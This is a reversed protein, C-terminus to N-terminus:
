ARPKNDRYFIEVPLHLYNHFSLRNSKRGRNYENWHDNGIGFLVTNSLELSLYNCFEAQLKKYKNVIYDPSFQKMIESGLYAGVRNVYDGKNVVFLSDDDDINTLRLGVRAHSLPFTKSLSFVVDTICPSSVDFTINQCIGFYACDVLVPINLLECQKILDDFQSHKNGTDAFPLSIVVADNEKLDEDDIFKWNPWYNRWALQHYMYEGRFCRFRKQNNKLYFKDFSETTGNSYCAYKFKDLGIFSNLTSANIWNLYVEKYECTISKDFVIDDFSRTLKRIATLVEKDQIAASNGFNLHRKDYPYRNSM